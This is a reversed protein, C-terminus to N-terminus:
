KNIFLRNGIINNYDIVNKFKNKVLYRVYPSIMIKFSKQRLKNLLDYDETRSPYFKIQKKVIETKVAFSIGVKCKYFNDTKIEPLIRNDNNHMRFIIVDIDKFEDIENYFTQVYNKTLIDDDDVFAVWETKAHKIGVNRVNGASNINTGLKKIQIIRIKPNVTKINPKIGDFVIIANWNQNIQNELSKITNSLTKRGITPIIFTLKSM